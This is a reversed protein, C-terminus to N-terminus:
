LDSFEAENSQSDGLWLVAMAFPPTLRKGNKAYAIVHKSKGDTWWGDSEIYKRRKCRNMRHDFGHSWVSPRHQINCKSLQCATAYNSNYGLNSDCKNSPVLEDNNNKEMFTNYADINKVLCECASRPIYVPSNITFGSVRAKEVSNIHCSGTEGAGPVYGWAHLHKTIATNTTADWCKLMLGHSIRRGLHMRFGIIM